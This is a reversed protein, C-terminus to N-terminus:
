GAAVRQRMYDALVVAENNETDRAAYLLTVVPHDHIYGALTEVASPNAGLEQRYRSVFENMKAPDHGFWKRLETSPAIDKLWVDLDAEAKSVGRPWIRDVLVRFGDQPSAPSYIRKTHISM